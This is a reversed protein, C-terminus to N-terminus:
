FRVHTQFEQMRIIGKMKSVVNISLPIITCAHFLNSSKFLHKSHIYQKSACALLYVSLCTCTMKSLM